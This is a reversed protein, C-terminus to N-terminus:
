RGVQVTGFRRNGEIVEGNSLGNYM